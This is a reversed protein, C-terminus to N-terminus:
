HMKLSICKAFSSQKPQAERFESNRCSGIQVSALFFLIKEGRMIISFLNHSSSLIIIILFLLKNRLIMVKNRNM